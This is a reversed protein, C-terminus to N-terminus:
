KLYAKAAALLVEPNMRVKYNPNLYEFQIIGATNVVFVAPVPLAHHKQGSADELDMGFGKYMQITKEDVQFALGFARAATLTSDSVLEYTLKHKELSQSLKEPRDPSIAVLQYGMQLLQPEIKQLQGLQLNCYPCWGGRYFILITPKAKLAANLDFSTGDPKKLTLSPISSNVLLPCIENASPAIPRSSTKPEEARLPGAGLAMALWLLGLAFFRKKLIM